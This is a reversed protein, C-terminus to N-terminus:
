DGYEENPPKLMTSSWQVSNVEREHTRSCEWGFKSKSESLRWEDENSPELTTPLVHVSNVEREHIGRFVGLWSRNEVGSLDEM